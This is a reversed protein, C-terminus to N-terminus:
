HGQKDGNRCRCGIKNGIVVAVDGLLIVPTGSANVNGIGARAGICGLGIVTVRVALREGIVTISPV